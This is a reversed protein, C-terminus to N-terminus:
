QPRRRRLFPRPHGGVLGRFPELLAAISPEPLDAPFRLLVIHRIM